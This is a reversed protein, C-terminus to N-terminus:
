VEILAIKVDWRKETAMGAHKVEDFQRDGVYMTKTVSGGPTDFTASFTSPATATDITSAQADTIGAWELELRYLGQRVRYRQLYGQENRKTGEADIDFRSPAFKSPAPLPTSGITVSAM